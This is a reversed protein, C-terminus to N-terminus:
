IYHEELPLFCMANEYMVDHSDCTPSAPNAKVAYFMEGWLMLGAMRGHNEAVRDLDVVLCPIRTQARDFFREIERDDFQREALDEPAATYNSNAVFWCFNGLM